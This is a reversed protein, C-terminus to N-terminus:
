KKLRKDYYWKRYRRLNDPPSLLEKYQAKLKREMLEIPTFAKVPPIKRTIVLRRYFDEDRIIEGRPQTRGTSYSEEEINFPQIDGLVEKRIHETDLDPRKIRRKSKTHDTERRISKGKYIFKTMTKAKEHTNRTNTSYCFPCMNKFKGERSNQVICNTNDKFMKGCNMCKIVDNKM